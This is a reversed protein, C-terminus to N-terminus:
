GVLHDFSGVWGLQFILQRVDLKLIFNNAAFYKCILCAANVVAAFLKEVVVHIAIFNYQDVFPVSILIFMFTLAWFLDILPVRKSNTSGYVAPVLSESFYM